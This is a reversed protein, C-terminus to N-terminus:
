ISVYRFYIPSDDAVTPPNADEKSAEPETHYRSELLILNENVVDKAKQEIESESILSTTLIPPQHTPTSHSSDNKTEVVNIEIFPILPQPKQM